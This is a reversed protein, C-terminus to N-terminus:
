QGGRIPAGTLPVLPIVPVQLRAGAQGPAVVTSTGLEEYRALFEANMWIGDTAHDWAFFKYPGPALGSITFGGADDPRATRYVLPNNRLPSDPVAVVTTDNGMKGEPYSITGAVSAGDAAITIQVPPAADSGVTVRADAYISRNGQRLDSVYMGEPLVVSLSYSGEVLGKFMFEGNADPSADKRAGVRVSEASRLSVGTKAGSPGVIRGGLNAPPHVTITLGTLDQSNLDISTRGSYEVGSASHLAFAFLDYRGQPISRLEFLGATRDALPVANDFGSVAFDSSTSSERNVFVFRPMEALSAAYAANADQPRTAVPVLPNIVRGSVKFTRVTQLAFDISLSESGPAVQVYRASGPAATGPYFTRTQIYTSAGSTLVPGGVSASSEYMVLYEGPPIWYVRYEGRDNAAASRVRVLSPRGGDYRLQVVHISAGGAPRGASDIVRGAIAGGATLTLKQEDAQSAAKLSVRRTVHLQPVSNLIPGFFGPRQALLTYDAPPAIIRFRGDTGTTTSFTAPSSDGAATRSLRVQVSSLPDGSTSDTVVGALTVAPAQAARFPRAELGALVLLGFLLTRKM